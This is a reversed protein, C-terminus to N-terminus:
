WGEVFRKMESRVYKQVDKEITSSIRANLQTATDKLEAVAERAQKESAGIKDAESRVRTKLQKELKEVGAVTM